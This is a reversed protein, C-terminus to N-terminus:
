LLLISDGEAQFDGHIKVGKRDLGLSSLSSVKSTFLIKSIVNRMRRHSELIM